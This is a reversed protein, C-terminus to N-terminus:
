KGEIEQKISKSARYAEFHEYNKTMLLYEKFDALESLFVDLTNDLEIVEKNKKEIRAEYDKVLGQIRTQYEKEINEDSHKSLRDKLEVVEREKQTVINSLNNLTSSIITDPSVPTVYTVVIKIVSDYGNFEQFAQTSMIVEGDHPFLLASEGKYTEVRISSFVPAPFSNTM